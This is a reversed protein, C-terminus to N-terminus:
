YYLAKEFSSLYFITICLLDGDREGENKRFGTVEDDDLPTGVEYLWKIPKNKKKKKGCILTYNCLLFLSTPALFSPILHPLPLCFFSLM